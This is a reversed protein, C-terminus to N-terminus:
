FLRSLQVTIRLGQQMLAYVRMLLFHLLLPLLLVAYALRLAELMDCALPILASLWAIAIGFCGLLDYVSQLLVDKRHNAFLGNIRNADGVDHADNVRDCFAFRFCGAAYFLANIRYKLKGYLLLQGAVIWAAMQRFDHAACILADFM